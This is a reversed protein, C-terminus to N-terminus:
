STDSVMDDHNHSLHCKAEQFDLIKVVQSSVHLVNQSQILLPSIFFHKLKNKEYLLQSFCGRIVTVTLLIQAVKSTCGKEVVRKSGKLSGKRVNVTVISM